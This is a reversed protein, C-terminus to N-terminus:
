HINQIVYKQIFYKKDLNEIFDDFSKSFPKNIYKNEILWFLLKNYYVYKNSLKIINVWLEEYTFVVTDENKAEAFLKLMDDISDENNDLGNKLFNEVYEEITAYTMNDDYTMTNNNNNDTMNNTNNNNYIM